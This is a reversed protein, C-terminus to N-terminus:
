ASQRSGTAAGAGSANWQHRCKECQYYFLLKTIPTVNVDRSKCKPCAAGPQLEQTINV